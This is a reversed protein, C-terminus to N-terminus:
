FYHSVSFLIRKNDVEHIKKVKGYDVLDITGYAAVTYELELGVQFNKIRYTINPAIRYLYAIDLAMGYNRKNDLLHLVM